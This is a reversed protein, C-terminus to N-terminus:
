RRATKYQHDPGSMARVPKQQMQTRCRFRLKAVETTATQESKAGFLQDAYGALLDAIFTLSAICLPTSQTLGSVGTTSSALNIHSCSIPAIGIPSFSWRIPMTVSRSM